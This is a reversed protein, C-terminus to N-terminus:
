SAVKGREMTQVAKAEVEEGGVGPRFGSNPPRPTYTLTHTQTHWHGHARARASLTCPLGGAELYGFDLENVRPGRSAAPHPRPKARSSPPRPRRQLAPAACAGRERARGGARGGRLGPRAAAGGQKCGPPAPATKRRRGPGRPPPSQPRALPAAPPFSRLLGRSSSSYSSSAGSATAAAAARGPGGAGLSAVHVPCRWPPRCVAALRAAEASSGRSAPRRLPSGPPGRGWGRRRAGVVQSWTREPGRRGRRGEAPPCQPGRGGPTRSDAGWGPGRPPRPTLSNEM